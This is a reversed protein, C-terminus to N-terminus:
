YGLEFYGYLEDIFGTYDDKNKTGDGFISKIENPEKYNGFDTKNRYLYDIIKKVRKGIDDNGYYNQYYVSTPVNYVLSEIAFSSARKSYYKSEDVMDNHIKKIVRVIKKYWGNTLSNKSRSNSINQEPYNIIRTGDDCFIYVGQTYNNSDNNFNKRYDRYRLCPVVDADKRSSDNGKIDICKNHRQVVPFYEGLISVLVSKFDVISFSSDNFNMARCQSQYDRWEGHFTSECIVAIDVDSEVRVCTGNGYSGQVLISFENKEKSVSFGYDLDADLTSSSRNIDRNVTYGYDKLADRIRQIMKECKIRESDSLGKSYNQIKVLDFKM